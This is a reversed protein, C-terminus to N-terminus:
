EKVIKFKVVEDTFILNVFYVGPPLDMLNFNYGKTTETYTFNNKSEGQENIVIVKQLNKKEDSELRTLCNGTPNPYLKTGYIASSDPVYVTHNSFSTWCLNKVLLYVAYSTDKASYTHYVKRGDAWGGTFTSGDNFAWQYTTYPGSVSDNAHFFVSDKLVKFNFNGNLDNLYDVKVSDSFVSSKNGNM